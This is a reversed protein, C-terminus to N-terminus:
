GIRGVEGGRLWGLQVMGVVGCAKGSVRWECQIGGYFETLNSELACVCAEPGLARGVTHM